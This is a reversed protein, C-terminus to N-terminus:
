ASRRMRVTTEIEVGHGAIEALAIVLPSRLVEVSLLADFQPREQGNVWRAVQAPDRDLLASAEKQSLGALSFCRQVVGGLQGRWDPEIKNLAKAM